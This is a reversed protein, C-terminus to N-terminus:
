IYKRVAINCRGKRSTGTIGDYIFKGYGRITIEDGAEIPYGANEKLRGNVFVKQGGLLAKATERKSGTLFAVLLDLRESALNAHLTQYQIELQPIDATTEQCIVSTHRVQTLSETLFPIITELVYVFAEKDRVLIDGTLSRDIGLSMLAGLYDRHSLEEAYKESLPSIQLVHIPDEWEYGLSSVSGFVAIKRIAGDNGGTFSLDFLDGKMSLVIDQELPTLFHSCAYVGQNRAQESLDLIRNQFFENQKEPNM